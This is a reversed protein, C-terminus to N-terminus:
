PAKPAHPDLHADRCRQWSKAVEPLVVEHDIEGTAFFREWARQKRAFDLHNMGFGGAAGDREVTDNHYLGPRRPWSHWGLVPDMRIGLGARTTVGAFAPTWAAVMATASPHIGAKAPM